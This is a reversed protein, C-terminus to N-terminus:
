QLELQLEQEIQPDLNKYYSRMMPIQPKSSIEQVMPPKIDQILTNKTVQIAVLQQQERSVCYQKIKHYEEKTVGCPLQIYKVSNVTCCAGISTAGTCISIFAFVVAAIGYPKHNKTDFLYIVLAAIGLLVTIPWIWATIRYLWPKKFVDLPRVTKKRIIQQNYIQHDNYITEDEVNIQQNM